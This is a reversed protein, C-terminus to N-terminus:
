LSWVRPLPSARFIVLLTSLAEFVPAHDPGLIRLILVNGRLSAAAEVHRLQALLARTPGLRTEANPAVHVLTAVSLAGGLTAAGECSRDFDGNLRLAEAHVLRGDCRIRWQDVLRGKRVTEGMAARGLVLTELVTLRASGAMDVELRRELRGNDFLITEQPLWDLTAGAGLKLRMMTGAVGSSSRYIREAAQTTATLASGPGVAVGYEIRDGGTLGGSTNIFVVEPVAGGSRPLRMKACGQQYFRDLRIAGERFSFAVEARGLARQLPEPPHRLHM